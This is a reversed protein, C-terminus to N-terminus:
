SVNRKSKANETVRLVYKSQMLSVAILPVFDSTSEFINIENVFFLWVGFAIATITIIIILLMKKKGLLGLLRSSPESNYKNNSRFVM